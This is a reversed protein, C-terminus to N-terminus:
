YHFNLVYHRIPKDSNRNFQVIIVKHALSKNVAHLEVYDHNKYEIANFLHLRYTSKKSPTVTIKKLCHCRYSIRLVKYTKDNLVNEISDLYHRNPISDKFLNIEGICDAIYYVYSPKGETKYDFNIEQNEFVKENKLINICFYKLAEMEQFENSPVQSFAVMSILWFKLTLIIKYDRM